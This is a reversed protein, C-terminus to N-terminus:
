WSGFRGWGGRFCFGFARSKDASFLDELNGGVDISAFELRWRDLFPLHEQDGVVARRRVDRAVPLM